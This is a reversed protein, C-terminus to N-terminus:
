RRRLQRPRHTRGSRCAVYDRIRQADAERPWVFAVCTESTRALCREDTIAGLVEIPRPDDPLCFRLIVEAGDIRPAFLSGAYCMGLESINQARVRTEGAHAKERLEVDIPVRVRLRREIGLDM